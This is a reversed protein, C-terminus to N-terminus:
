SVHIIRLREFPYMWRYQVHGWVNEKFPLYIPLDKISDFFFLSLIMELKYITQVINTEIKEFQQTHLKNSYIDRFYHNIETLADCIGISLLDQYSLPIITQIFVYCDHSKKRYFRDDELNVLRSINLAYEDPFCMSKLWQYVLLQANKDLVFSVKPKIVWLGDYVL